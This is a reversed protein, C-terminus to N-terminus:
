SALVVGHAQDWALHVLDGRRVQAFKVTRAARAAPDYVVGCDMRVPQVEVWRDGICIFTPFNTSVYFGEPFVGDAPAPALTVEGTVVAEAGQERLRTLIAELAEPASAEVRLRVRSMDVPREGVAMELIEFRGERELIEDLVKPLILSDLIHGRLELTETVM